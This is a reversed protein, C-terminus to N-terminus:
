FEERPEEYGYGDDEYNSGFPLDGPAIDEEPPNMGDFANSMDEAEETDSESTEEGEEAESEECEEGSPGPM